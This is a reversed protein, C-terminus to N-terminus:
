RPLVGKSMLYTEVEFLNLFHEFTESDEPRANATAILEYLERDVGAVNATSPVRQTWCFKLCCSGDSFIVLEICSCRCEANETAKWMRRELVDIGFLINDIKVM